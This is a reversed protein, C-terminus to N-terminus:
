GYHRRIQEAARLGSLYAGHVTGLFRHYTAEGAFYLRRSLPRALETYDAPTAGVPVYSYSGGAYPDTRWRTVTHAVPAPVTPGGVRRLVRLVGAVVAEDTEAEMAVAAAAGVFCLLLPQGTLPHLNFFFPYEGPTDSVYGLFEVDADWWLYDFRLVIKNLLGVGLRDIAAQKTAPLPPSFQVVDRKLVGLPLTIVAVDASFAGASTDVRVRDEYSIQKVVAGLRVDLGAALGKMVGIYGEPFARDGGSLEDDEFGYWTSIRDLPAAYDLEIEGVLLWHLLPSLPTEESVAELAAWLSLDAEQDESYAEASAYLRALEAEGAAVTENSLPTGDAAYTHISDYDTRQTPLSQALDTIPNGDVGHIWSAGLDVPVGLSEDTWIRGGIRERAEVVTVEFGADHLTRAAALGSAGAGIVLVSPKRRRLWRSFLSQM